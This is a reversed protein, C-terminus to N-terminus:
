FRSKIKQLIRYVVIKIKKWMSVKTYKEINKVIDIRDIDEFFKERKVNYKVPKVICPNNQISYDFDTKIIEIEKSIELLMEEGKSSNVLVLSVGKDDDFERHINQVGWYDALTIDAETNPKKFKCAYCSPRLYIDDLFGKMYINNSANEISSKNNNFNIKIKNQKWGSEKNRFEFKRIKSSSQIELHEKYLKFVKPSPVGHCAIDVTLLKEYDKGLFIKLGASHCPTGSFLIYKDQNLYEKIKIYTEGMISQFYKSGKFKECEVVTTAEMYKLKLEEDYAVGFVIGGLSIIKKSLISFIGGSSSTIRESEIKNKCAYANISKKEIKQIIPCVKECLNCYICLDRNIKPYWFGENDNEMTICKKPCVNECGYCGCCDKKEKIDILIM